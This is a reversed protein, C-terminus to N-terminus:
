TQLCGAVPVPPKKLPMQLIAKSNQPLSLAQIIQAETLAWSHPTWLLSALSFLLARLIFLPMLHPLQM